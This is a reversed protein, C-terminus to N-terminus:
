SKRRTHKASSVEPRHKSPTLLRRYRECMYCECGLVHGNKRAVEHEISDSARAVAVKTKAESAQSLQRSTPKPPVPPNINDLDIFQSSATVADVQADVPNALRSRVYDSLSLHAATARTKISELLEPYVRIAPLIADRKRDQKPRGM